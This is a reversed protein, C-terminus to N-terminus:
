ASPRSGTVDYTIEVFQGVTRAGKLTLRDPYVTRPLLPKGSDLFAPALTMIIRDLAGADLFQGVLDGGGMVWVTGHGAAETITPLAQPVTSNLFRVDVGPPVSLDRSTFVYTPREGFFETWKEPFDLMNETHLLWEYTSSGMVFVSVTRTFPEMDPAESKVQFLWELSDNPDALFGNATTATNFIFM